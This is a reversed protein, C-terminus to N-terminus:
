EICSDDVSFDVEHINHLELFQRTYDCKSYLNVFDNVRSM